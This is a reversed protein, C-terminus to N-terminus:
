VMEIVVPTVGQEYESEAMEEYDSCANSSSDNESADLKPVVESIHIKYITLPAYAVAWLRLFSQPLSNLTGRLAAEERGCGDERHWSFQGPCLSGINCM